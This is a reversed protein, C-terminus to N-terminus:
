AGEKVCKSLLEEVDEDTWGLATQLAARGAKFNENNEDFDKTAIVLDHLGKSDIWACAQEWVGAVMLQEVLDATIFVRPPPPPDDVLVYVWRYGNGDREIKDTREWHKGDPPNVPWDYSLPLYGMAAKDEATPFVETRREDWDREWHEGSEPDDGEDHHHIVVALPMPCYLPRMDADPKAFNKDYKTM